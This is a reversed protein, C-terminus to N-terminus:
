KVNLQYESVGCFRGFSNSTFVKSGFVNIHVFLQEVNGRERRWGFALPLEPCSRRYDLLAAVRSLEEWQMAPTVVHRSVVGELLYIGPVKTM